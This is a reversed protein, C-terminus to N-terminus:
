LNRSPASVCRLRFGRMRGGCGQACVFPWPRGRVLDRWLEFAKDRVVRSSVPLDLFTLPLPGAIDLADRFWAIRLLWLRANEEEFHNKPCVYPTDWYSHKSISRLLPSCRCHVGGVFAERRIAD